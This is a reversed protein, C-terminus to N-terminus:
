LARFATWQQVRAYFHVTGDEAIARTTLHTWAGYRSRTWIILIKGAHVPDTRVLYTVWYGSPVIATATGFGSTGRDIGPAIQDDLYMETTTNRPPTPPETPDDVPVSRAAAPTVESVLLVSVALMMALTGALRRGSGSTAPASVPNM